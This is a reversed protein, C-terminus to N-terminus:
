DETEETETEPGLPFDREITYAGVTWDARVYTRRTSARGCSCTATERRFEHTAGAPLRKEIVRWIEFEEASLKEIEDARRKCGECYEDNCTPDTTIDDGAEVHKIEGFRALEAAELLEWGERAPLLGAAHRARQNDNGLRNIIETLQAAKKAETLAKLAEAEAKRAALIENRRAIRAAVAARLDEPLHETQRRNREPDIEGPLAWGEPQAALWDRAIETVRSIKAAHEAAREARRSEARALSERLVGAVMEAPLDDDDHQLYKDPCYETM